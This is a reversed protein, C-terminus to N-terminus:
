SFICSQGEPTKGEEGALGWFLAHRATLLGVARAKARYGFATLQQVRRQNGLGGARLVAGCAGWEGKYM